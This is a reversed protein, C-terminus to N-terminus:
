RNSRWQNAVVRVDDAVLYLDTLRMDNALTYLDCALDELLWATGHLLDRSVMVRTATGEPGQAAAHLRAITAAIEGRTRM